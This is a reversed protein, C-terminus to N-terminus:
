RMAMSRGLAMWDASTWEHGPDTDCSVSSPMLSNERRLLARLMGACDPMPCPGIEIVRTGSGGQVRRAARVLEAMEDACEGAAGHSALWRGHAEVYRGLAATTEVPSEVRNAPGELGLPLRRIEWRWPLSVGREEHILRGWGVLTNRITLRVEVVADNLVLSPHPNSGRGGEGSGSPVLNLALESWLTAATVANSGISDAHGYCVRLGDGAMNPVCGRCGEGACDPQHMGIIRCGTATCLNM